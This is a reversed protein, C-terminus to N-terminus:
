ERLRDEMAALSKSLPSDDEEAELSKDVEMFDGPLRGAGHGANYHAIAAEKAMLWSRIEILEEPALKVVLTALARDMVPMHPVILSILAAEGQTLLKPDGLDRLKTVADMVKFGVYAVDLKGDPYRRFPTNGNCRESSVSYQTRQNDVNRWSPSGGTSPVAMDGMEPQMHLPKRSINYM